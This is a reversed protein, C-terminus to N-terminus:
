VPKRLFVKFMGLVLIVGYQLNAGPEGSCALHEYSAFEICLYSSGIESVKYGNDAKVVRWEGKWARAVM